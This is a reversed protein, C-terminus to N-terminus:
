IGPVTAFSIGPRPPRHQCFARRVGWSRVRPPAIARGARRRASGRVGATISRARCTSGVLRVDCSVGKM